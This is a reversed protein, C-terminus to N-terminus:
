VGKDAIEAHYKTAFILRVELQLENAELNTIKNALHLYSKMLRILALEEIKNGYNTVVDKRYALLINGDIWEHGWM